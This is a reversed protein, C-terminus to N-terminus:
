KGECVFRLIKPALVAYSYESEISALQRAAFTRLIAPNELMSLRQEVANIVTAAERENGYDPVVLGLRKLLLWDALQGVQTSIVVAGCAAAQFPPIPTADACSLCCLVDLTRFWEVMEAQSKRTAHTETNAVFEYRDGCREVLPQWIERYGKFDGDPRDSIQGCFGVRLRRTKSPKRDGPNYIATDVGGPFVGVQRNHRNAWRGLAYNRCIVADLQQLITRGNGNNRTHNVGRTRWNALDFREHMWAHSGVCAVYRKPRSQFNVGGLYMAYTVDNSAVWHPDSESISRIEVNLDLPAYKKLGEAHSHVAWFPVDFQIGVKM